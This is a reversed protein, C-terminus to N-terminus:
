KNERVLAWTIQPILTKEDLLVPGVFGAKLKMPINTGLYNWLVPAECFTESFLEVRRGSGRSKSDQMRAQLEKWNCLDNNISSRGM